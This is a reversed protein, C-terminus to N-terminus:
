FPNTKTPYTQPLFEGDKLEITVKSLVDRIFQKEDDSIKPSANGGSPKGSYFNLTLKNGEALDQSYDIKDITILRGGLYNYKKLFNMFSDPDGMGIISISIKKASSKALNVVYQSIFYGTQQSIRELAVVLSFYDESEPVLAGIIQNVQDIDIGENKLQEKLKVLNVKNNLLRIEDVTDRINKQNSTYKNAFIVSMLIIAVIIFLLSVLFLLNERIAKVIFNDLKFNM